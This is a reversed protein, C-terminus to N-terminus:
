KGSIREHRKLYKDYCEESCFHLVKGEVVGKIGRQKLFYKGCQPDQILDADSPAADRKQEDADSPGFLSRTFKKVVFYALWLLLAYVFFRAM